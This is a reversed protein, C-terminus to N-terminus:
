VNALPLTCWNLMGLTHIGITYASPAYLVNLCYFVSSGPLVKAHRAKMVLFSGPDLIKLSSLLALFPASLSSFSLRRTDVEDTLDLLLVLGLLKWVVRDSQVDRRDKMIMRFLVLRPCTRLVGSLRYCINRRGDRCRQILRLQRLGNWRSLLVLAFPAM